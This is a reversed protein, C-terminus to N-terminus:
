AVDISMLTIFNKKSINDLTLQIINNISNLHFQLNIKISKCVYENVGLINNDVGANPSM